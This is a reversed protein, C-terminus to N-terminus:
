APGVEKNAPAIELGAESLATIVVKAICTAQESTVTLRESHDDETSCSSIAKAIVTTLQFQDVRLGGLIAFTPLGHEASRMSLCLRM